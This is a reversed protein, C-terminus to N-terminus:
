MVRGATVTVTDPLQPYLEDVEAVVVGYVGAVVVAAAAVVVVVGSLEECDAADELESDALSQVDLAEEEARAWHIAVAKALTWDM